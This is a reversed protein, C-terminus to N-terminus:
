IHQNYFHGCNACTDGYGAWKGCSCVRCRGNWGLSHGMFTPHNTHKLSSVEEDEINETSTSFSFNEIDEEVLSTADENIYADIEDLLNNHDINDSSSFAEDSKMEITDPDFNDIDDLIYSDFM